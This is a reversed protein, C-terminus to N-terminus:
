MFHTKDEMLKKYRIRIRKIDEDSFDAPSFGKLTLNGTDGEPYVWVIFM